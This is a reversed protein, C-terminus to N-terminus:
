DQAEYFTLLDGLVLVRKAYDRLTVLLEAMQEKPHASVAIKMVFRGHDLGDRMSRYESSYRLSRRFRYLTLVQRNLFEGQNVLSVWCYTDPHYGALSHRPSPIPVYRNHLPLAGVLSM